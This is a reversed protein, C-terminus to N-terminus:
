LTGGLWMHFNLMLLCYPVFGVALALLGLFVGVLVRMKPRDIALLSWNVFCAVPISSWMLLAGVAALLSDHPQGQSVYLLDFLMAVICYGVFLTTNAIIHCM